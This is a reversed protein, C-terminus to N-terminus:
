KQPTLDPPPATNPSVTPPVACSTRSTAPSPKAPPRIRKAQYCSMKHHPADASCFPCREGDGCQACAGDGPSDTPTGEDDDTDSLILSEITPDM